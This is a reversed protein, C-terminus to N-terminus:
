QYIADGQNVIWLQPTEPCPGEGDSQDLSCWDFIQGNVFVTLSEVTDFQFAAAEIQGRFAPDACSNTMITGSLYLSAAGNVIEVSDYTLGTQTAIVNQIDANEGSVDSSIQNFINDYVAHLVGTTEPIELSTFTIYAGCGFPGIQGSQYSVLPVQILTFGNEGNQTDVYYNVIVAEWEGVSTQTILDEWLIDMSATDLNLITQFDIYASQWADETQLIESIPTPESMQTALWIMDPNNFSARSLITRVQQEPLLSMDLEPISVSVDEVSLSDAPTRVIWVVLFILCAIALGIIIKITTSFSM